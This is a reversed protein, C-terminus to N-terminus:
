AGRLIVLSISLLFADVLNEIPKLVSIHKVLSRNWLFRLFFTSILLTLVMLLIETIADSKNKTKVIDRLM